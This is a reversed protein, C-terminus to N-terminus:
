QLPERRGRWRCLRTLAWSHQTAFCLRLSHLTHHLRGKLAATRSPRPAGSTLGSPTTSRRFRRGPHRPRSGTPGWRHPKKRMWTICLWLAPLHTMGFAMGEQLPSPAILYLAYHSLGGAMMLLFITIWPSRINGVLLPLAWPLYWVQFWGAAFLYYSILVGGAVIWLERGQRIRRLARVTCYAIIGWVIGLYLLTVRDPHTGGQDAIWYIIEVLSRTLTTYHPATAAAPIRFTGIGDWLPVYLLWAMGVVTVLARLLHGFKARWGPSHGLHYLLYLGFPVIAFFKTFIGLTFCLAGFWERQHNYAWVGAAIALVMLGDNHGQYAIEILLLPNACTLLTAMTRDAPDVTAQIMRQLIWVTGIASLGALVKMGAVYLLLHDGTIASVLSTLYLAVPGYVCPTQQWRASIWSFLPDGGIASPLVTYPNLHYASWLRGYIMYSYLDHSLLPLGLSAIGIGCLATRYWEQASHSSGRRLTTLYQWLLLGISIGYWGGM